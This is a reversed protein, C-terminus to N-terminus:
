GKTHLHSPSQMKDSAMMEPTLEERTFTTHCLDCVFKGLSSGAVIPRIMSKRNEHHTCSTTPLM